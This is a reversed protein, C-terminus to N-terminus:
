PVPGTATANAVHFYTGTGYQTRVGENFGFQRLQRAIPAEWAPVPGGTSDSDNLGLTHAFEHALSLAPSLVVRYTTRPVVVHSSTVTTESKADIGIAGFPDWDVIQGGAYTADVGGPQDIDVQYVSVNHMRRILEAGKPAISLYFFANFLERNLVVRNCTATDKTKCGLNIAKTNGSAASQIVQVLPAFSPAALVDVGDQGTPDTITVPNAAAYSYVHRTRIDDTQVLPDLGEFRGVRPDMWRARHYALKSTADFAEGAFRYPLPDSGAEVNM